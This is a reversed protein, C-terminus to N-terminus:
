ESLEFDHTQKGSVVTYLLGSDDASRYRLPIEKGAPLQNKAFGDVIQRVTIKAPGVPVGQVVYQGDHVRDTVVKGEQSVFSVIGEPLPQGLFTVKGSITGTQEQACGSVLLPVLCLYCSGVLLRPWRHHYSSMAPVGKMPRSKGNFVTLQRDLGDSGAL